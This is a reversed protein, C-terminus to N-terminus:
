EYLSNSATITISRLSKDDKLNLLTPNTTNGESDLIIKVKPRMCVEEYNDVVIGTCGNSLKVYTGVPFPAVKRAFIRTLNLDFMIGGNAMIYEMAESPLLAKRYPRNSTLADYVDAICIIRGLLSIEENAKNQPYGTGDLKEHHQLVAVYASAPIQYTEKLYNYGYKAHDKVHNYEEDTLKGEKNLIDKDVFIKGIDHLIAALGLNYLESRELGLEAGVLISLVTVNVSHFFTYEDFLKLDILNIMMDKNDLIEEIINYVLQKTEDMKQSTQKIDNDEGGSYIFVDKVAQIAKMRLEDSIVDKVVIEESIDDEVYIGQYGLMKIKEIYGKVIISGKSLLLKKNKDYLSKGVVMGEMLGSVPVFRM